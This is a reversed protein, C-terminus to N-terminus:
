RSKSNLLEDLKPWYQMAALVDPDNRLWFEEAADPGWRVEAVRYGLIRGLRGLLEPSPTSSIKLRTTARELFPTVLRAQWDATASGWAQRAKDDKPLLPAVSDAVAEIWGSDAAVSFWPPLRASLPLPVDPALGGGGRVERGHDTHYITSTDAETGTKGAFSYYQGAKLGRYSRQIIRGSPTQVRAITLWVVDGRPPIPLRQQILAKGFSRRGLVLARDHDQLAGVLAESASASGEDILVMLPLKVFAGEKDTRVEENASKRRGVTHFLVAQSPLFLSAIEIAAGVVGGPNSRLDLVLQRAGQSQLQKISKAVEEGGKIQFEALRVYGTTHDLLRVMGVSRAPVLDLKLGVRITDPELRSGRSLLLRIKRGKDGIVQRQAEESSLGAVSTDNITLVRDGAAIGARAGPGRPSVALVVIQDDVQDFSLGAGALRGMAYAEEREADSEREFRSHPDLSSLVGEIAATVLDPYAVSDVYNQRVQNLLSSFTQLQEYSAAQAPLLAPALLSTVALLGAPLVRNHLM